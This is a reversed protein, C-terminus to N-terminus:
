NKRFALNLQSVFYNEVLNQRRILYSELRELEDLISVIKEQEYKSPMDIAVDDLKKIPITVNAVGRMLPVLLEDKYFSLYYYLYKTNLKQKNKPIIAALINAVAFKGKEYHIRHLSAHGHGTSSVLPVCVAEGDFQYTNATRRNKATVVFTYEGPLTKLTPSKGKFIDCETALRVKNKTNKNSFVQKSIASTLSKLKDLDSQSAKKLSLIINLKKAIRNQEPLDPVGRSFPVPIQIKNLLDRNLAPYQAGQMLNNTQNIFGDSLAYFLLYQPCFHENKEIVFFGTSAIAGDYDSPIVAFSRLYPRVSSILLDGSKVIRKARSPATNKSTIKPNIIKTDKVADIDIYTFSSSLDQTKASRSNITFIPDGLNLTKWEM